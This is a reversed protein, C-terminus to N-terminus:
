GAQERRRGPAGEQQRSRTHSRMATRAGAMSEEPDSRAPGLRQALRRQLTSHLLQRPLLAATFSSPSLLAGLQEASWHSNRAATCESGLRELLFTPNAVAPEHWGDAAAVDVNAAGPREALKEPM